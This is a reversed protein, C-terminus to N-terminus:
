GGQPVMEGIRVVQETDRTFYILALKVQTDKISAWTFCLRTACFNLIYKSQNKGITNDDYPKEAFSKVTERQIERKDVVSLKRLRLLRTTM